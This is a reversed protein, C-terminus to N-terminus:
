CSSNSENNVLKLLLLGQLMLAAPAKIKYWDEEQM